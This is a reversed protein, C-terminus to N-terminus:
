PQGGLYRTLARGYRAAVMLLQVQAQRRQWTGVAYQSLDQAKEEVLAGLSAVTELRDIFKARRMSGGTARAHEIQVRLEAQMRTEGAMELAQLTEVAAERLRLPVM